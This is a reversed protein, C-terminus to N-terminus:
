LLDENEDIISINDIIPSTVNKNLGGNPIMELNLVSTIGPFIAVDFLRKPYFGDRFAEINYTSYGQEPSNPSQSYEESPAPLPIVASQGNRDTFISYNVSRNMDDNGFIRVNIEPTPVAGGASYTNIQLFGLKDYNM